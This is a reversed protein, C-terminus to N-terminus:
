STYDFNTNIQTIGKIRHSPAIELDNVKDMQSM